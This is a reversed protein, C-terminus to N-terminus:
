KKEATQTTKYYDPPFSNINRWLEYWIPVNKLLAIGNAGTGMRLEKPWKRYAADEKVLVKFKGSESVDSEVASVIGGYVGYSAEPWGSFVIAPFGDFLFRVKQGPSVLPLDVPRIYLEVAYDMQDPVIHVLMEGEKVIEGIGSKRAKIIQGSQPATVHYMGNRISYSAYQNQLKSIDGQGTAVQSLSGFKEGEAKSVKEAYEQQVASREIQLINMEQKSALYKNEASVKKALSTQYSQNRGELQTLSVLGSDHLAKQRSFQVTAIKLDNEAAVLDMSDSKIKMATQLLKNELQNIKATLSNELADIQNETAAIKNQYYSVSSKKADIQEGTRVLLNPDLYDEKIESLLLITDGKQVYDGEKVHWKDVRGAIITNIQQPRHEQRLTTVT